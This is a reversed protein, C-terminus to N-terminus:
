SSCAVQDECVSPASHLLQRIVQPPERIILTYRIFEESVVAIEGTFEALIGLLPDLILRLGCRDDARASKLKPDVDPANSAGFCAFAWM